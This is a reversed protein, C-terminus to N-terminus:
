FFFARDVCMLTLLDCRSPMREESAGQSSGSSRSRFVVQKSLSLKRELVGHVLAAADVGSSGQSIPPDVLESVIRGAYDTVVVIIPIVTAGNKLTIGDWVVRFASPVPLIVPPDNFRSSSLRECMLAAMGSVISAFWAGHYKEGLQVSTLALKQWYGRLLESRPQM